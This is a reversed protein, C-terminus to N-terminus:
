SCVASDPPSRFVSACFRKNGMGVAVAAYPFAIGVGSKILQLTREFM